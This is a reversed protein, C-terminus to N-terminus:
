NFCRFAPDLRYKNEAVWALYAIGVMIYKYVFVMTPDITAGGSSEVTQIRTTMDQVSTFPQLGPPLISNIQTVVAQTPTPGTQIMQFIIKMNDTITQGNSLVENAINPVGQAGWTVTGLVREVLPLMTIFFVTLYRLLYRDTFALGSEGNTFATSFMTALQSESTYPVLPQAVNSPASTLIGNVIPVLPQNNLSALYFNVVNQPDSYSNPYVFSSRFTQVDSSTFSSVVKQFLLFLVVVVLLVLVVDLPKM